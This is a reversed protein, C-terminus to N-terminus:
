DPKPHDAGAALLADVRQKVEPQKPNYQLAMRYLHLARDPRQLTEYIQAKELLARNDHPDIALAEDVRAQAKPLDGYIRWLWADEAIPTALKPQRKVWDNVLTTADAWRDERVLLAALAHRCEAHNPDRQLCNNYTREAVGDQGLRDSCQGVSYMLDVDGPRLDLAAQFSEKADQYRGINYLHVADETYDRVKEQGPTACGVAIPLMLILCCGLWRM